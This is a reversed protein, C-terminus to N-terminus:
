DRKKRRARRDNEVDELRTVRKDLGEFTATVTEKFGMIETKVEGIERGQKGLNRSIAWFSGGIAGAVTISSGVISAILAGDM